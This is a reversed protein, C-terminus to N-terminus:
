PYPARRWGPSRTSGPEAGSRDQRVALDVHTLGQESSKRFADSVTATFVLTGAVFAVLTLTVFGLIDVRTV